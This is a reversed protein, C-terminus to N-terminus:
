DAVADPGMIGAETYRALYDGMVGTLFDPEQPKGNALVQGDVLLVVDDCISKVFDANHEVLLIGIGTSAARKLGDKLQQLEKEALGAAPEDLCIIEAGADIARAVEVMRQIGLPATSALSGIMKPDIGFSHCIDKARQGRARERRSLGPLRFTAALMQQRSQGISGMAVNMAVTRSGVLKPVQFTRSIGAHAIRRVSLGSITNGNLRIEGATPRVFGSITNLLTTKGSGNPGILGVIRGRRVSLSVGDLVKPGGFSCAVDTVELCDEGDVGLRVAEPTSGAPQDVSPRDGNGSAHQVAAAESPAADHASDMADPDRVVIRRRILPVIGGRFLIASLLVAVGLILQNYVSFPGILRNVAEFIAVGIIPGWLTGRGGIFVAGVLLLLMSFGFTDASVFQLAHAYEAGAVGCFAGIIAFLKAQVLPVNVGFSAAAEPHDRVSELLVGSHSKVINRVIICGILVTVLFIEYIEWGSLMTSGASFPLVGVLGNEGGTWTGFLDVVSPFVIVAFFTLVAYYWGKIRVSPLGLLLSGIVGVLASPIVTYWFGWQMHTSLLAATYAGFALIVPQGLALQGGYGYGFNLSVAAIAYVCVLELTALDFGSGFVIPTAALLAFLVVAGAMGSRPSLEIRWGKSRAARTAGPEDGKESTPGPLNTSITM